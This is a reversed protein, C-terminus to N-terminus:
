RVLARRNAPTGFVGILNLRRLNIANDLTAQRAVSASSPIKPTVSTPASGEINDEETKAVTTGQPKSATSRASAAVAAISAPRDKPRPVLVVALATPTEDVQAKAQLSEPRQKPRLGALEDRTRGGLQTREFNEVLKEPRPKPRFAALGPGAEEEATETEPRAPTEPPISSPKGLYVLVGDPNLTGEKTPDVLGSDNLEFVSDAPAPLSVTEVPTDTDFSSVDPLAVADQSLNSAEISALYLDDEPEALLPAIPPLPPDVVVGADVFQKRETDPDLAVQEVAQPEVKLAELIAADTATLEPFAPETNEAIDPAAVTPQDAKDATLEVPSPEEIKIESPEAFEPEDTEAAVLDDPISEEVEVTAPDPLKPEPATIEVPDALTIDEPELAEVEPAEALIENPPSTNVPEPEPLPDDISATQPEGDQTVKDTDSQLLSWAGFALGLVVVAAISPVVYRKTGSDSERGSLFNFNGSSRSSVGSIPPSSFTDPNAPEAIPHVAPQSPNSGMEPEASNVQEVSAPATEGSVLFEEPDSVLEREPSEQFDAHKQYEETSKIAEVANQKSPAAGALDDPKDAPSADEIETSISLRPSVPFEEASPKATFVAPKFGHAVVFTTAEELTQKAVACVFTRKDDSAIDYALKSLAYPTAELLASEALSARAQEDLGESELTLYRIQDEPIVVQCSLDNELAFAKQHLGRMSADLDPTDLSVTEVCFWDGDSQHHLSIEESSFSLAFAPKM